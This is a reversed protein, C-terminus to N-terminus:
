PAIIVIDVVLHWWVLRKATTRWCTITQWRRTWIKIRDITKHHFLM